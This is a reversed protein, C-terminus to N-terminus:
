MVLFNLGFILYWLNFLAKPTFYFVNKIIKLPSEAALNYWIKSHMKLTRPLLNYWILLKWPGRSESWLKWLRSFVRNLVTDTAQVIHWSCRQRYRSSFNLKHDYLHLFKLLLYPSQFWLFAKLYGEM